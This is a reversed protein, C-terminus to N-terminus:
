KEILNNDACTMWKKPNNQIYKRCPEIEHLRLIREYYRSQWSNLVMSRQMIKEQQRIDEYLQHLNQSQSSFANPKRDRYGRKDILLIGHVHNPMIVFEDPVVFPFHNPIELWYQRAIKGIPTLQVRAVRLSVVYQSGVSQMGVPQTGVPTEWEGHGFYNERNQTCITIFFNGPAGYYRNKLRTSENRYTNTRIEM